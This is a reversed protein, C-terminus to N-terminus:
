NITVRWDPNNCLADVQDKTLIETVTPETADVVRTVKYNYKDLEPTHEPGSYELNFVQQVYLNKM